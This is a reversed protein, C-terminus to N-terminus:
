YRCARGLQPNEVLKIQRELQKQLDANDGIIEHALQVGGSRLLAEVALRRLASNPNRATEERIFEALPQRAAAADPGLRCLGTLAGILINREDDYPPLKAFSKRADMLAVLKPVAAAGEDSLRSSALYATGRRTPTQTLAELKDSVPLLAGPPLNFIARSTVQVTDRGQPLPAAMLRDLLPGALTAADPGLKRVAEALHFFSTVRPDGIILRTALLDNPDTPGRFAIRRLVPDALALHPDGAPLDPNRLAAILLQTEQAPDIGRDPVKVGDGFILRAQQQFDFGNLTAERRIFGNTVNLGNGFVPGIAFPLLLPESKVETQRYLTQMGAPMRRSLEIRRASVTDLDLQWPNSFGTGKAKRITWDSLIIDAESMAAPEAILCDGAAIRAAIRNSIPDSLDVTEGPWYFEQQLKVPPCTQRKEIRFAQVPKDPNQTRVLDNRIVREAAGNYLLRLCIGDCESVGSPPKPERDPTLIAITGGHVPAGSLPLDTSVLETTLRNTPQNYRLPIACAVIVLPAIVAVARVLRTQRETFVFASYGIVSYLLLSPAVALILGPVMLMMMGIIVSSPMLLAILAMIGIIFFFIATPKSV